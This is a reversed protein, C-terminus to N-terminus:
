EVFKVNNGGLSNYLILINKLATAENKRGAKMAENLAATVDKRTEPIQGPANYKVNTGKLDDWMPKLPGTTTLYETAGPGDPIIVDNLASTGGETIIKPLSPIGGKPLQMQSPGFGSTLSHDLGSKAASVALRYFFATEKGSVVDKTGRILADVKEANTQNSVSRMAQVIASEGWPKNGLTSANLPITEKKSITLPGEPIKPAEDLPFVPRLNTLEKTRGENVLQEITPLLNFPHIIKSGRSGADSEGPDFGSIGSEGPKKPPTDDLADDSASSARDLEREQRDRRNEEEMLAKCANNILPGIGGGARAESYDKMKNKLHENTTMTNAARAIDDSSPGGPPPEIIPTTDKTRKDRDRKDDQLSDLAGPKKTKDDRADKSDDVKPEKGPEQKPESSKDVKAEPKDDTHDPAPRKSEPVDDDSDKLILNINDVAGDKDKPSFDGGVGKLNKNPSLKNWYNDWFNKTLRDNDDMLDHQKLYDKADKGSIIRTGDDEGPSDDTGPATGDGTDPPFTKSFLSPDFSHGVNTLSNWLMPGGVIGASTTWSHMFTKWITHAAGASKLWSKFTAGGEYWGGNDAYAAFAHTFFYALLGGIAISAAATVAKRQSSTVIILAIALCILGLIFASWPTIFVRLLYGFSGAFIALSAAQMTFQRGAYGKLTGYTSNWAARVLLALGSRAASSVVAAMGVAMAIASFGNILAGILLAIGAGSLLSAAALSGAGTFYGSIEGPIRFIAAIGKIPGKTFIYRLLGFVLASLVTFLLGVSLGGGLAGQRVALAKLLPVYGKAMDAKISMIGDNIVVFLYFYAAFFVISLIITLPLQKKFSKWTLRLIHMLLPRFETPVPQDEIDPAKAKRAKRKKEVPAEPSKSEGAKAKIVSATKPQAAKQWSKGTWFLWGGDSPDIQYWKGDTAKYRLRTVRKRFEAKPIKGKELAEKLRAFEAEMKRVNM